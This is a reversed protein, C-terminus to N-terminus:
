DRQKELAEIRAKVGGVFEAQDVRMQTVTGEIRQASAAHARQAQELQSVRHVTAANVGANAALTNVVFVMGTCLALLIPVIIAGVIAVARNSM